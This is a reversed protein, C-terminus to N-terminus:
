RSNDKEPAKRAELDIGLSSLVKLVTTFEPNGGEDLSRYLSERALNTERAVQSM